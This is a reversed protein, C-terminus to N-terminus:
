NNGKGKSTTSPEYQKLIEKLQTLNEGKYKAADNRLQNFWDLGNEKILRAAYEGLNGGLFHNCRICQIKLNRQDFDLKNHYFHGIQAEKYHILKGCTYCSVMDQFSASEKRIQKSQM